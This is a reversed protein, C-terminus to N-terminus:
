VEHVKRDKRIEELRIESRLEEARERIQERRVPTLSDMVDKHTRM